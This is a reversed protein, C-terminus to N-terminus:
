SNPHSDRRNRSKRDRRNKGHKRNEIAKRTWTAALFGELVILGAVTAMFPKFPAALVVVGKV